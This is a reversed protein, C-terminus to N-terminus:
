ASLPRFCSETLERTFGDRKEEPTWKELELRYNDPLPYWKQLKLFNPFRILISKWIQYQTTLVTSLLYVATTVVKPSITILVDPQYTRDYSRQSGIVM